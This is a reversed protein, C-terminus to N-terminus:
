TINDFVITNFIIYFTKPIYYDLKLGYPLNVNSYNATGTRDIYGHLDPEM